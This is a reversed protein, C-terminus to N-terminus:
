AEGRGAGLRLGRKGTMCRAAPTAGRLRGMLTKKTDVIGLLEAAGEFAARVAEFRAPTLTAKMEKLFRARQETPLLLAPLDKM